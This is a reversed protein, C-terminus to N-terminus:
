VEPGLFWNVFRDTLYGWPDVIFEAISTWLRSLDDYFPLWERLTSEVLSGVGAWTALGPLTSIVFSDYSSKLNNFSAL